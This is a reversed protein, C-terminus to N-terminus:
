THQVFYKEMFNRSEEVGRRLFDSVEQSTMVARVPIGFRRELETMDSVESYVAMILVPNGNRSDIDRLALDEEVYDLSPADIILVVKNGAEITQESNSSGPLNEPCSVHFRRSGLGLTQMMCATTCALIAGAGARGYVLDFFSLVNKRYCTDLKRVIAYSIENTLGSDRLFKRVAFINPQHENSTINLAGITIAREIFSPAKPARPAVVTDNM